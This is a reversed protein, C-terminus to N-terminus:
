NQGLFLMIAKVLLPFAKVIILLHVSHSKLTNTQATNVRETSDTADVAMQVLKIIHEERHFFLKKNKNQMVTSFTSRIGQLMYNYNPIKKDWNRDQKM